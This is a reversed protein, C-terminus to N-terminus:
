VHNPALLRADQWGTPRLSSSVDDYLLHSFAHIDGMGAKLTGFCYDMLIADNPKDKTRFVINLQQPPFLFSWLSLAPKPQHVVLQVFYKNLFFPLALFVLGILICIVGGATDSSGDGGNKKANSASICVGLGAIFLVVGLYFMWKPIQAKSVIIDRLRYKPITHVVFSEPYCLFQETKEVVVVSEYFRVHLQDKTCSCSAKEVHEVIEYLLKGYNGPYLADTSQAYSKYQQDDVMPNSSGQSRDNSAHGKVALTHSGYDETPASSSSSRDVRINHAAHGMVALAKQAARGVAGNDEVPAPEAYYTNPAGGRDGGRVDHAGHAM